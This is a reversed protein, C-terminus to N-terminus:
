LYKSNLYNEYRLEHLKATVQRGYYEKQKYLKDAQAMQAYIAQNQAQTQAEAAQVEKQRMAM